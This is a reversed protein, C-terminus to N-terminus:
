VSSLKRNEWNAHSCMVINYKCSCSIDWDTCSCLSSHHRGKWLAINKRQSRLLIMYSWPSAISCCWACILELHHRPYCSVVAFFFLVPLRKMMVSWYIQLLLFYKFLCQLELTVQTLCRPAPPHLCPSVHLQLHQITKTSSVFTISISFFESREVRWDSSSHTHLRTTSFTKM